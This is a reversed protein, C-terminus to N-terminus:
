KVSLMRHFYEAVVLSLGQGVDYVITKRPGPHPAAMRFLRNCTNIITVPFLKIEM